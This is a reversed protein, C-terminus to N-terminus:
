NSPAKQMAPEVGISILASLHLDAAQSRPRARTPNVSNGTKASNDVPGFTVLLDYTQRRGALGSFDDSSTVVFKVEHQFANGEQGTDPGNGEKDVNRGSTSLPLAAVKTIRLGVADYLWEKLKLDSPLLGQMNPRWPCGYKRLDAVLDYQSVRERRTATSHAVGNVDPGGSLDPAFAGHEDYLLALTTQVGWSDIILTQGAYDKYLSYVADRVECAANTMLDNVFPLSEGGQVIEPVKSGCTSAINSVGATNSAAVVCELFQMVGPDFSADKWDLARTFVLYDGPDRVAMKTFDAGKLHAGEFSSAGSFHSNQLHAGELYAGKFSTGSLNSGQLAAGNLDAGDFNADQLDSWSLDRGELVIGSFYGSGGYLGRLDVNRRALYGYLGGLDDNRRALYELSEKRGGGKTNLVSWATQIAAEQRERYDAIWYILAILVTLKGAYELVQFFAFKSALYAIWECGWNVWLFPASWVSTDSPRTPRTPEM